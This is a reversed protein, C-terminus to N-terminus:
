NASILAEIPSQALPEPWHDEFGDDLCHDTQYHYEVLYEAM